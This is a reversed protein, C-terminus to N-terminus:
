VVRECSMATKTAYSANGTRRAGSGSVGVVTPFLDNYPPAINCRHRATATRLAPGSHGAAVCLPEKGGGYPAIGVDGRVINCRSSTGTRLPRVVRDARKNKPPSKAGRLAFDEKERM